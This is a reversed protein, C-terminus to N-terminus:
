VVPVPMHPPARTANVSAKLKSKSFRSQSNGPTAPRSSATAVSTRSSSAPRTSSTLVSASPLTIPTLRPPPPGRTITAPVHVLDTKEDLVDILTAEDPQLRHASEIRAHERRLTHQHM